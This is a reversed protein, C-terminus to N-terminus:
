LKESNESSTDSKEESINSESKEDDVDVYEYDDSENMISDDLEILDDDAKGKDRGLVMAIAKLSPDHRHEIVNESTEIVKPGESIVEHGSDDKAVTTRRTTKRHRVKTEYDGLALKYLNTSIKERRDAFAAEKIANLDESKKFADFLWSRSVGLYAAVEAITDGKMIRKYIIDAKQMIIDINEDSTYGMSITTKKKKKKEKKKDKKKKKPEDTFDFLTIGDVIKVEDAM